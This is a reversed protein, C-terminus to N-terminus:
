TNPSPRAPRVIFADHDHYVRAERVGSLSALRQAEALQAEDLQLAIQEGFLHQRAIIGPVSALRDLLDRTAGPSATLLVFCSGMHM